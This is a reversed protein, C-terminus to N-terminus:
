EAAVPVPPHAGQHATGFVLIVGEMCFDSATASGQEERLSTCRSKRGGRSKCTDQTRHGEASPPVNWVLHHSNTLKVYFRSPLVLLQPIEELREQDKKKGVQLVKVRTGKGVL